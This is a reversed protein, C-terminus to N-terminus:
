STVGCQEAIIRAIDRSAHPRALSLSAAAAAAITAPDNMWTRLADVVERPRPAWVGANNELVYEVNGDEQGTMKSYLILPLGKIFGESITGPGAKTILIDAGTMFAPMQRTFGYIHAPINWNLAELSAKLEENRGCIVALQLPLRAENIAKAVRKLPGMGDGGGVLLVAPLRADWGQQERWSAKDIQGACFRDAVPLGVVRLNGAAIGFHMAREKARKTPVIILDAHRDYWFAHTSVMDTVVTIFPSPHKRMARALTNNVLPHVSIILEAPNDALLRRLGRHLYPYQLGAMARARGRGDSTRYALGWMGIKTMPPYIEPAFRWPAPYYDRFFDVMKCDFVGPFELELAEIMAETAARHGGGTDSFLFLLRRKTPTSEGAM